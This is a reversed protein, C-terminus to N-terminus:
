PNIDGMAQQCPDPLSSDESTLHHTWLEVMKKVPFTDGKKNFEHFFKKDQEEDGHGGAKLIILIDEESINGDGSVGVFDCIIEECKHMRAVFAEKNAKFAANQKELFEDVTIEKKGWM